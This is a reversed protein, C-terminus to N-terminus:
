SCNPPITTNQPFKLDRVQQCLEANRQVAARNDCRLILVENLAARMMGNKEVRLMNELEHDMFGDLRIPEDAM